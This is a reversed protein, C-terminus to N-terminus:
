DSLMGNLVPHIGNLIPSDISKSANKKIVSKNTSPFLLHSAARKGFWLALFGYLAVCISGSFM